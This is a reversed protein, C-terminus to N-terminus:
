HIHQGDLMLFMFVYRNFATVIVLDFFLDSLSVADKGRKPAVTDPEKNREAVQPLLEPARWMGGEYWSRHEAHLNEKLSKAETRADKLESALKVLGKYLKNKVSKEAHLEQKVNHLKEKLKMIKESKTKGDDPSFVQEPIGGESSPSKPPGNEQNDM